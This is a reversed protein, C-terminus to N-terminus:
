TRRVSLALAAGRLLMTGKNTFLGPKLAEVAQHMLADLRQEVATRAGCKELVDIADHIAQVSCSEVGWAKSFVTRQAPNMLSEAEVVLATRKGARIDGGTPKGTQAEDGFTGLLDDRLQFALGLPEGYERLCVKQEDTAGAVIAGLLLPGRVTYSGTKLSHMQALNHTENPRAGACLDLQQGLVVDLQIQAFCRVVDLLRPASAPVGLLVDLAMAAVYDGALIASAEGTHQVRHFDVLLRHVTPGGRRTDDRDMWDDHILLYGQLLELAVGVEVPARLEEGGCALYSACALAPRFRKGGRLVLDQAAAIMQKADAGLSDARSAHQQFVVALRGDIIARVEGLLQAFEETSM